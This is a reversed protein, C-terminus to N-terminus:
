GRRVQVRESPATPVKLWREDTDEIFAIMDTRGLFSEEVRSVTLEAGSARVRDGPRVQDATVQTWEEDM